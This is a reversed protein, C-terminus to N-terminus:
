RLLTEDEPKPMIFRRNQHARVLRGFVHIGNAKCYEVIQDSLPEGAAVAREYAAQVAEDDARDVGEFEAHMKTLYDMVMETFTLSVRQQHVRERVAESRALEEAETIAADLESLVEPTFFKPAALSTWEHGFPAM